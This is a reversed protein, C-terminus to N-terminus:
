FVSEPDEGKVKLYDRQEDRGHVGPEARLGELSEGAEAEQREM